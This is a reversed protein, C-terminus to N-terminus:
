LVLSIDKWTRWKPLSSERMSFPSTKNNRLQGRLLATLQGPLIADALLIVLAENDKVSGIDQWIHKPFTHLKDMNIKTQQLPHQYNNVVTEQLYFLRYNTRVLM